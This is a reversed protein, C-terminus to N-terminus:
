DIDFLLLRMLHSLFCFDVSLSFRTSLKITFNMISRTTITYEYTSLKRCNQIFTYSQNSKLRVYLTPKNNTNPFLNRWITSIILSVGFTCVFACVIYCIPHTGEEQGM